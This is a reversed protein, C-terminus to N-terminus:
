GRSTDSAGEVQIRGKELERTVVWVKAELEEELALSLKARGYSSYRWQGKERIWVSVVVFSGM